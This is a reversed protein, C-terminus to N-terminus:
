NFRRKQSYQAKFAEKKQTGNQKWKCKPYESCSTFPGYQSTREMKFGVGCAPCPEISIPQGNLDVITIQGREVLEVLFASRSTALTFIFVGRRARTIAVYFLRREEAFPYVEPEPMACQLIPDDEIQSPFGKRGGTVNLLLVYDAETGKSSHVTNYSLNIGAGCIAELESMNHPRDSRYRGLLMISPKREQNWATRLKAVIKALRDEVLSPMEDRKKAAFCQIAKGTVKSDTRVKKQLQMPNQEVFQTSVNCIEEPCRFTQTLQLITGSGFYQQFSRMVSMDAGAFRNISQADDGVATLFTDSRATIARLLRARAASADQYEDAIVLKYPSRYKGSEAHEIALNIMDDFDVTGTEKLEAQWRELVKAYLSIILAGRVPDLKNARTTMEEVSLHNGKAHLMLNRIIRALVEFEMPQRGPPQRNPDLKLTLGRSELAEKLDGLGNMSRLTHSTTEFLTTANKVHLERKWRVGSLYDKFEKPPQGLANLAFHEHFLDAEPYYFDPHYQSHHADATKFRYPAEYQYDVGHFFLWDAIIREERSKVTEGRLTKLSEQEEEVRTGSDAGLSDPFVHRVLTLNSLFTEDTESLQKMISVVKAIDQSGELWAAPRPKAGTAEGIVSLGFSHFTRCSIQDADPYTSLRKELREELEKAADANFALMLIESPKVIGATIAYAAKAVMTATKGSGAAAVLLVKSDFCIVARRQEMTLPTTELTDFLPLTKRKEFLAENLRQLEANLGISPRPAIQTVLGPRADLAPLLSPHNAMADVTIGCKLKLPPNTGAIQDGLWSPHWEGPLKSLREALWREYRIAADKAALAVQPLHLSNFASLWKNAAAEDIGDLQINGGSLPTIIAEAWVVGPKIKIHGVEVLGWSRRENEMDLTLQSDNFSLTFRKSLTLKSGFFSNRLKM